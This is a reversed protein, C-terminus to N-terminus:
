RGKNSVAIWFGVLVALVIIGMFVNTAIAYVTLCISLVFLLVVFSGAFWDFLFDKMGEEESEGQQTKRKLTQNRGQDV